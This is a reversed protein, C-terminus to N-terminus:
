HVLRHMRDTNKIKDMLRIYKPVFFLVETKKSSNLFIHFPIRVSQAYAEHNYVFM